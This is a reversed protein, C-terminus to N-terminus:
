GNHETREYFSLKTISYKKERTKNLKGIKESISDDIDTEAILLGGSNLLDLQSIKEIIKDIDLFGYPPDM